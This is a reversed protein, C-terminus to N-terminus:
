GDVDVSASGEEAVVWAFRARLLEKLLFAFCKGWRTTRELPNSGAFLTEGL